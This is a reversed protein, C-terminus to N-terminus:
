PRVMTWHVLGSLDKSYGQHRREETNQGAPVSLWALNCQEGLTSDRGSLWPRRLLDRICAIDSAFLLRFRTSRYASRADACTEDQEGVGGSQSRQEVAGASIAGWLLRYCRL